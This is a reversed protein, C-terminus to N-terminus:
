IYYVQVIKFDYFAFILIKYNDLRIDYSFRIPITLNFFDICFCEHVQKYLLYLEHYELM